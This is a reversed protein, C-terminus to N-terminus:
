QPLRRRNECEHDASMWAHLCVSRVVLLTAVLLSLFALIFFSMPIVVVTPIFSIIFCAALFSM